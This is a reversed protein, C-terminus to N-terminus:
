NSNLFIINSLLDFMNMLLLLSIRCDIIVLAILLIGVVAAVIAYVFESKLFDVTLNVHEDMECLTPLLFDCSVREVAADVFVKCQDEPADLDTVWVM